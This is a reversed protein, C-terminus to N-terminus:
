ATAFFRKLILYYIDALRRLEDLEIFEDVHHATANVGGFEVAECYDKIFRADSTGGSTSLDPTKGTVERVAAIVMASLRGPPTLFAEGTVSVEFDFKGGVGALRERLLKELSAGGHRDNFRVNFRATARAPIVNAALNGVDISTIAVTSPPFHASGPDLPADVIASLMEMLRPIPNDANEPYASHGQTGHVTLTANLSGRRGIKAMEGLVTPNTPEGVLCADLKEGVHGLAALMKKTGNVSPGEEDGTILLSISGPFKGGTEAIFRGAAAVFAAIAGKMDSAGRGYLRGDKVTAAFPDVSWGARDGVPVVDTHGAFCFNPAAAGRRAYLNDVDPTGPESFPLRRCIFGLPKLAAEIVGLAGEDNFPRTVGAPTRDGSSESAAPTVSACRILAQALPLPEHTSPGPASM